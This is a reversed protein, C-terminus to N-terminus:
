GLGITNVQFLSLQYFCAQYNWGFNQLVQAKQSLLSQKKLAASYHSDARARETVDAARLLLSAVREAVIDEAGVRQLTADPVVVYSM